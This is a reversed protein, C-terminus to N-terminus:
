TVNAIESEVCDEYKSIKFKKDSRVNMEVGLNAAEDIRGEPSFTELQKESISELQKAHARM